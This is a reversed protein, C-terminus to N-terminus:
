IQASLKAFDGAVDLSKHGRDYELKLESRCHHFYRRVAVIDSSELSYGCGGAMICRPVAALPLCMSIFCHCGPSVIGDSMSNSRLKWTTRMAGEQRLCADGFPTLRAGAAFGALWFGLSGRTLLDRHSLLANARPKAALFVLAQQAAATLEHGVKAEGAHLVDREHSAREGM